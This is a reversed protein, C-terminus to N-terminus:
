VRTVSAQLDRIREAYSRHLCILRGDETMGITTECWCRPDDAHPLQDSNPVIHVVVNASDM